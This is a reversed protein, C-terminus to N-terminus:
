LIIINFNQPNVKINNNSLCHYITMKIGFINKYDKYDLTLFVPTNPRQYSWWIVANSLIERDDPNEKIVERLELELDEFLFRNLESFDKPQIQRLFKNIAHRIKRIDSDSIDNSMKFENLIKNLKRRVEKEVKKCTIQSNIHNNNYFDLVKKYHPHCPIHYSIIVCSDLFLDM